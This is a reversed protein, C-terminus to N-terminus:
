EAETPTAVVKATRGAKKKPADVSENEPGVTVKTDNTPTEVPPTVITEQQPEPAAVVSETYGELLKDLNSFSVLLELSGNAHRHQWGLHTAHADVHKPRISLARAILSNKEEETEHHFRPM